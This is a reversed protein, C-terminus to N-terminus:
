APSREAHSTFDVLVLEGPAARARVVALPDGPSLVLIDGPGLSVEGSPDSAVLEGSLIALLTLAGSCTISEEGSLTVRVARHDMRGRRTMINLDLVPGDVLSAHCPDDGTFAFPRSKLDLTTTSGDATELRVGQGSTLVLTRDVGDWTSFPGDTTIAAVSVRAEFAGHDAGPPLTLVETTTGGGNKWPMVRYTSPDLKKM